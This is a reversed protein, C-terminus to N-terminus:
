IASKRKVQYRDLVKVNQHGLIEAVRRANKTKLLLNKACTHRLTQACVDVLGAARAYTDIARQVSRMSLPKGRQSVFVQEVVPIAPRVALYDRLARAAASNLPIVRAGNGNARIQVQMGRLNLVVDRMGLEAVEHVRLGAHLMLQMIAYDRQILSPRGCKISHGLREIEEQSLTRPTDGNGNGNPVLMLDRAPNEEANGTEHLFRGFLRLSQLRRNVTAPSHTTEVTLYDRYASFDAPSIRTESCGWLAQWRAFSRLDALYNRITTPSLSHEELYNQFRQVLNLNM